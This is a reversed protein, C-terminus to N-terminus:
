TKIFHRAFEPVERFFVHMSDNFSGCIFGFHQGLMALSTRTYLSVHGNRPGAYWWNLGQEDIDAPQVLTTFLILGTETLFENMDAITRAPDSSHELVEFSVVCDFRDSPRASYRPVFPDYTETNSFGAARLSEALVGNGGGYDLIRTPRANSFLRCLLKANGQSREELYEPDVLLYDDNYVHRLFDEKTFDDFATTFIFQCVPCRYYYIPVGSIDLVKCRRMECNKHFDVVGYRFAMSGCCKCPAQKTCIAQLGSSMSRRGCVGFDLRVPRMESIRLPKFQGTM